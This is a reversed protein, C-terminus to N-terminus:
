SLVMTYKQMVLSTLVSETRQIDFKVCTSLVLVFFLVFWLFLYRILLRYKLEQLADLALSRDNCIIKAIVLYMHMYMNNGNFNSSQWALNSDCYSFRINVASDNAKWASNKDVSCDSVRLCLSCAAKSLIALTCLLMSSVRWISVSSMSRRVSRPSFSWRSTSLVSCRLSLEMENRM